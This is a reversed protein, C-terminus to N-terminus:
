RPAGLTAGVTAGSKAPNLLAIAEDLTSPSLHMYRM